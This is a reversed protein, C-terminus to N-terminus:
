KLKGSIELLPALILPDPQGETYMLMTDVSSNAGLTLLPADNVDELQICATAPTSNFIGDNVVFKVVRADGTPLQSLSQYKVTRLSAEFEEISALGQFLLQTNTSQAADLVVSGSAEAQISELTSDQANVLELSAWAITTGSDADTISLSSDSLFVPAEDERYTTQYSGEENCGSNLVTTNSTNRTDLQIEPPQDNLLEILVQFITVNSVTANPEYRLSIPDVPDSGVQYAIQRVVPLPEEAPDVYVVGRLAQEYSSLPQSASLFLIRSTANGSSTIGHLTTIELWGPASGLLEVIAYDLSPNTDRDAITLSTALFTRTEPERLTSFNPSLTISPSHDNEDLVSVFVQATDSEASGVNRVRVEFQYSATSEQDLATNTYVIGNSDIRFDSTNLNFVLQSHTESDEDVASVSLVSTGIPAGENITANYRDQTFTPANDNLDTVSITVTTSISINPYIYGRDFLEVTINHITQAEFDLSENTFIEGTDPAITFLPNAEAIRFYPETPTFTDADTYELQLIASGIPTNEPVFVFFINTVFEPLHDNVPNLQILAVSFGSLSHDSIQIFIFRPPLLSEFEDGTYQYQVDRLINAYDTPSAPGSFAISFSDTQNYTVPAMISSGNSALFLRDQPYPSSVSVRMEVILDETSDDDRILVNDSVIPVGFSQETFTTFYNVQPPNAFVVPAFDNITNIYIRTTATRSSLYYEHATFNIVRATPDPESALNIYRLLLLSEVYDEFSAAGSLSLSTTLNGSVTISTNLQSIYIAEQNKDLENELTVDIGTLMKEPQLEPQLIDEDTISVSDCVIAIGSGRERFTTQYDLGPDDGNLDLIPANLNLVEVDITQVLVNSSLECDFVYLQITRPQPVPNSIINVYRVSKLAAEYEQISYRGVLVLEFGLGSQQVLGSFLGNPLYLFEFCGLTCSAEDQSNACECRNVMAENDQQPSYLTLHARCLQQFSDGDSITINLFPQISVQGEVFTVQQSTSNLVPSIDNSDVINITVTATDTNLNTDAAVVSFNLSSVSEFDIIGSVSIIGSTNHISFFVPNDSLSYFLQGQDISDADTANVQLVSRGLPASEVVTAEFLPQVFRPSNDNVDVVSVRVTAQATLGAPDTAVVTLVHEGQAERDLSQLLSISGSLENVTFFQSPALLSYSINLNASINSGMGSGSLQMDPETQPCEILDDDSATVHAVETGAPLNELVSIVYESPDFVPPIDHESLVYVEIELQASQSPTGGDNAQVILQYYCETEFDLGVITTIMGSIPDILFTENHNLLQYSVAGNSGADADSALVTTVVYGPENEPAEVQPTSHVFVPPNDNVDIVNVRVTANGTLSPSGSDRALVIFVLSNQAEFDLPRNVSIHGTTANIAFPLTDSDPLLINSDSAISYSIQANQAADSDTAQVSLILSGVSVNEMVTAEYVNETFRPINDNLDGIKVSIRMTTSQIPTGGDTAVVTLQYYDKEERDIAVRSLIGGTLPNIFFSQADSSNQLSYTIEANSTCDRDVASVNLLSSGAPQNELFSVFSETVFVPSNDNIDLITINFSASSSLMPAGLDIAIVTLVHTVDGICGDPGVDVDLIRTVSIEGSPSVTFPTDQNIQPELTFLGNQGLDGDTVLVTDIVFGAIRSELVELNFNNSPSFEPPNDNADLVQISVMAFASNQPLGRDNALINLSYLEISERDLPLTTFIHGSTENIYFHTLGEQRSAGIINYSVTGDNGADIDLATVKGVTTGASLGEMATFSYANQTFQPANDNIAFVDLLVVGSNSFLEGDSVAITIVRQGSLPEDRTNRYQLTMLFQTADDLSFNSFFITYSISVGNAPSPLSINPHTSEIKEDLGDLANQITITIMQVVTAEDNDTLRVARGTIYVSAGDETFNGANFGDGQTNADLDLVPPDNAQIAFVSTTVPTSFDDGDTAVFTISRTVPTPEEAMNQYQITRLVALFESLPASIGSAPRLEIHTTNGFNEIAMGGLDPLVLQEQDLIPSLTITVATINQNDIDMLLAESSVISVTELSDEVFNVSYDRGGVLEGNLDIIPADNVTALFLPVVEPEGEDEGDSLVFHFTRTGPTPNGIGIHEYTISLLVAIYNTLTDEGSLTLMALTSNYLAAIATNTTNVSLIERPRDLANFMVIGSTLLISDDDTATATQILLVPGDGEKYEVARSVLTLEPPDNVYEISVTTMATVAPQPDDFVTFMIQRTTGVPEDATNDYTLTRVVAEFMPLPLLGTLVLTHNENYSVNMRQPINQVSLIEVSSLQAPNLIQVRVVYPFEILDMDTLLFSTTNVLAVPGSEEFFTVNYDRSAGNLRLTPTFDNSPIVIIDLFVPLCNFLVDQVTYSLIYSSTRPETFPLVLFLSNLFEEYVEITETGEFILARRTFNYYHTLPTNQLNSLIVVGCGIACNLSSQSASSLSVVLMHLRGNFFHELPGSLGRRSAGIIVGGNGDLPQAIDQSEFEKGDIYVNLRWQTLNSNDVVVGLHHWAGTLASCGNAFIANRVSGEYNYIFELSGNYNCFLGYLLQSSSVKSVIAMMHNINSSTTPEFWIWMSITLGNADLTGYDGLYTAYQRQSASLVITDDVVNQGPNLGDSLLLSGPTFRTLVVVNSTLCSRFKLEKNVELSCQFDPVYDGGTVPTYPFSPETPNMNSFELIGDILQTENRGDNDVITADLNLDLIRQYLENYAVTYSSLQVIPPNDNENQVAITVQATAMFHPPAINRVNVILDIEPILEYDILASVSLVGSNSISFLDTHSPLYVTFEANVASDIDAIVFNEIITGLMANEALNLVVQSPSITPANDNEDEVLVTVSVTSSLQQLGNDTAQVEFTWLNQIERDLSQTTQVIGSSPNIQFPVSSDLISFQIDANMGIDEDFASVRLVSFFEPQNELISATYDENEFQPENDNIDRVIFQVITTGTLAPNGMDVAQVEFNYQHQLERDLLGIVFLEGSLDDIQFIEPGVIRYSLIANNGEDIDFATLTSVHRVLETSSSDTILGDGSESSEGDELMSFTYNSEPFYPANDNIDLLNIIVFASDNQSGSDFPNYARVTLNLQQTSERDLLHPLAVTILGTQANVFFPSGSELEYNIAANTMSDKDTAMLQLVSTGVLSHEEIVAVYSRQSFEPANDNADIVNVQIVKNSSLSEERSTDNMNFVEVTLTHQTISEYDLLHQLILEGTQADVSFLTKNGSVLVFALQVDTNDPDLARLTTIVTKEPTSESINLSLPDDGEFVPAHEDVDEIEVYVLATTSLPPIGNDMVQVTVLYSDQEERDFSVSSNIQGSTSDIVFANPYSPETSIISYYLEVRGAPDMDQAQVIGVFRPTTNESVAFFYTGQIFQPAVDNVDTIIVKLSALVSTGTVLYDDSVAVFINYEALSEFDLPLATQIEGSRSDISFHESNEGVLSYVLVDTPDLDYAVATLLPTGISTNEPISISYSSNQFVPDNDDIDTVNITLSATDNLQGDTVLLSLNFERHESIDFDLNQVLILLGSSPDIEFLGEENGSTISYRLGSVGSCTENSIVIGDNTCQDVNCADSDLALPIYTMLFPLLGLPVSEQVEFRLFEFQFEPAAENNNLINLTVSANAHKSGDSAAARVSILQQEEYDLTRAITLLGTSVNISVCESCGDIQIISYSLADGDGDQAVLKLIPHGVPASECVGIESHPSEFEPAHENVNMVTVTIVASSSMQPRGNDTAVVSFTYEGTMEFDIDDSVTINGNQSGVTFPVADPISFFFEGHSGADDDNASVTLIIDGNQASELITVSYNAPSFVPPDENLSVNVVVTAFNTSLNFASDIAQFTIVYQPVSDDLQNEPLNLLLSGQTESDLTFANRGTPPNMSTQFISFDDNLDPDVVLLRVIEFGPESGQPITVEYIDPQFVPEVDNEDEIFIVVNSSDNFTGDTVTVSLTYIDREERDPPSLTSFIEGTTTEIVFRCPIPDQFPSLDWSGSGSAAQVQACDDGSAISYTLIIDTNVSDRDTALVQIVKSNPLNEQISAEYSPQEFQPSNDNVFELEVTVCVEPSPALDEDRVSLCFERRGPFPEELENAFMVQRLLQTVEEPSTANQLTAVITSTNATLVPSMHPVLIVDGPYPTLPRIRYETINSDPDSVFATPAITVPTGGETYNILLDQLDLRPPDNRLIIVIEIDGFGSFEGDSVEVTVKRTASANPEDATNQYMLSLLVGEFDLIPAHFGNAQIRIMTSNMEVTVTPSSSNITIYELDGDLPNQLVINVSTLNSNDVDEISLQQDVLLIPDSSEEQFYVINNLGPLEGNLDVIPPNNVASFAVVISDPVGSMGGLGIPTVTIIRSGSEPNGPTDLHEYTLTRLIDTYDNVSSRGTLDIQGPDSDSVQSVTSEFLSTNVQLREFSTDFTGNASLRISLGEITASDVDVISANPAVLLRRPEQGENYQVVDRRLRIEPLDDVTLFQITVYVLDSMQIGTLTFNDYLVIEITRNVPLPQEAANFYEVMQLIDQVTMLPIGGQSFIELSHAYPSSFTVQPFDVPLQLGEMEQNQPNIITVIASHLITSDVDSLLAERAVRVATTIPNTLPEQFPIVDFALTLVPLQDNILEIEVQLHVPESFFKGDFVTLLIETIESQPETNNNMYFVNSLLQQYTSVNQTGTINLVGSEFNCNLDISSCDFGLELYEFSPDYNLLQLTSSELLSSTIDDPDIINVPDSFLRLRGSDEVWVIADYPLSVEPPEDNVLIIEITLQVTNSYSYGDSVVLTVDREAHSPERETNVFYLSKLYRTFAELSNDGMDAASVRIQLSTPTNYEITANFNPPAHRALISDVSNAVVSIGSGSYGSGLVQELCRSCELVVSASALGSSDVDSIILNNFIQVAPGNETYAIQTTGLQILPPDNVPTIEVTVTLFELSFTGTYINSQTTNTLMESMDWILAQFSSQGFYDLEPVFRIQSQSTLLLASELSLENSFSVWREGDFYEWTGYYSSNVSIVALGLYLDDADTATASTIVHVSISNNSTILMDEEMTPLYYFSNNVVPAHNLYTVNYTFTENEESLSSQSSFVRSGNICEDVSNGDWARYIFSAQGSNKNANPTPFFRVRNEPSVLWPNCDSINVIRIWISSNWYMWEGLSTGTTALIALGVFDSSTSSTRDVDDVDTDNLLFSPYFGVNLSEPIYNDLVDDSRQVSRIVPRDNIPIFNVPIVAPESPPSTELPFEQVVLTINREKYPAQDDSEFSVTKLIDVFNDSEIILNRPGTATITITTNGSGEVTFISSNSVWLRDVVGNPTGIFCFVDISLLM